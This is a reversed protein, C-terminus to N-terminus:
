EAVRSDRASIIEATLTELSPAFMLLRLVYPIELLCLNSISDWAKFTSLM